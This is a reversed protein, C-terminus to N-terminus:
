PYKVFIGDRSLALRPPPYPYTSGCMQTSHFASVFLTYYKAAYGNHTSASLVHLHMDHLHLNRLVQGIDLLVQMEIMTIIFIGCISWYM